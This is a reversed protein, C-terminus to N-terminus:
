VYWAHARKCMQYVLPALVLANGFNCDTRIKRRIGQAINQKKGPNNADIYMPMEIHQDEAPVNPCTGPSPRSNTTATDSATFTRASSPLLTSAVSMEGKM